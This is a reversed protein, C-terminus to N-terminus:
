TQPKLDKKAQLYIKDHTQPGYSRIEIAALENISRIIDGGNRQFLKISFVLNLSIPMDLLYTHFHKQM